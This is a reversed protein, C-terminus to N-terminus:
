LREPIEDEGASGAATEGDSQHACPGVTHKQSAPYQQRIGFEVIEIAEL